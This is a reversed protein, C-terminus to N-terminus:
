VREHLPLRWRLTGFEILSGLQRDLEFMNLRM